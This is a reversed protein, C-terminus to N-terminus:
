KVHDALAKEAEANSKAKEEKWTEYAKDYQEVTVTEDQLKLYKFFRDDKAGVAAYSVSFPVTKRVGPTAYNSVYPIVVSEDVLWAQAKAYTTYRKELDTEKSAEALLANYDDFGVKKAVESNTGGNIGITYTMTGEKSTDFIDLYTSPDQFDPAWGSAISMDYDTQDANNAYYTAALYADEDLMQLDIQVNESGLADEISKKLSQAQQVRVTNAQDIPVDLKIPFKVGEKELAEKAKAFEAKAKEVNYIGDQADDLQVNEWESGYSVIQEEVLSAFDKEGVTVFDAPVVMNRIGKEAGDEGVSQANFTKRDFAFSIAQRFDKNQLAAKTSAKEEDTTKSTHDYKTRGMNMMAYYTASGPQSYVINDKYQEKVSSYSSTNPYVRAMTYNGDTFNKIFNEPNSGDDYTLKINEISVKDADWYNENKTFEVSSKATIASLLYAGNYLLTSPDTPIGFKDGQSKLFEENVPFLIGMTTKSNWFPEPANLTYEVTHDDIAKVGVTSFDSTEGKIYADLGKISNQIIYLASSNKDAAYKVGAVFDHATVDAYEEGDSTFWKADKRLKYTYTLGDKSVTWDEAISPVFNGYQDNELLGDVLNTVIESTTSHNDVLYDLTEPDTGYVYSYTDNNTDGSSSKSSGGGCAALAGVTLLTVGALALWKKTKM